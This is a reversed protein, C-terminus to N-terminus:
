RPGSSLREPVLRVVWMGARGGALTGDCQNTPRPHPSTSRLGLPTVVENLEKGGKGLEATHLWKRSPSTPIKQVSRVVLCSM